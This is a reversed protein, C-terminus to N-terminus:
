KNFIELLRNYKCVREGRNPAGFKCQNADTGLVLDSIFTDTTEGSRHSVIANMGNSRTLKIADITESVSGIQNPKILVATMLKNDIGMQILSPNTVLLDDGVIQYKDKFKSTFISWGERDNQDLPDEIFFIPYEKYLDEQYRIWSDRDFSKDDTKLEYRNKEKNFLESAAIDLAISFKGEYGGVKIGEMLVDLAEKNSKFERPAYGGEYGIGTGYGKSELVKHIGYLIESSARIVDSFSTFSSDNPTIMYEQIDTSWNGHKAGELMLIMPRPIQINERRFGDGWYIMGIYEYIDLGLSNATAKLFSISCSLISNGGLRSKNPTNDLQILYNDFDRQSQYERNLIADKIVGNVMEVAKLVGKGMYRSSDGDRLELVENEGTSTGSPVSCVGKDGSVLEITTQITPTGKSDLIEIAKIDKIKM